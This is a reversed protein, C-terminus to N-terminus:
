SRYERALKCFLAVGRLFDATSKPREAATTPATTLRSSTQYCQAATEAAMAMLNCDWENAQALAATRLPTVFRREYSAFLEREAEARETETCDPNRAATEARRLAAFHEDAAETPTADDLPVADLCYRSDDLSAQVARRVDDLNGCDLCFQVGDLEAQSPLWVAVRSLDAGLYQALQRLQRVTPRLLTPQETSVATPSWGVLIVDFTPPLPPADPPPTLEASEGGATPADLPPEHTASGSAEAPMPLATADVQTAPDSEAPSTETVAAGEKKIVEPAIPPYTPLTEENPTTLEAALEAQPTNVSPAETTAETTTEEASQNAVEGDGTPPTTEPTVVPNTFEWGLLASLQRWDAGHLQPWASGSAVPLGWVSLTEAAAEDLTIMIEARPRNESQQRLEALAAALAALVADISETSCSPEQEAPTPSASLEDPHIPLQSM